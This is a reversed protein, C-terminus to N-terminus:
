KIIREFQELLRKGVVEVDFYEKALHHANKSMQGIDKAM